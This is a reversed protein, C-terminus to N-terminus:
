RKTKPSSCSNFLATSIEQVIFVMFLISNMQMNLFVLSILGVLIGFRLLPEREQRGRELTCHENNEVLGHQHKGVWFEVQIGQAKCYAIINCRGESETITIDDIDTFQFYPLGWFFQFFKPVIGTGPTFLSQIYYQKAQLNCLVYYSRGETCLWLWSSVESFCTRKLVVAGVNVYFDPYQWLLLRLIRFQRIGSSASKRNKGSPRM